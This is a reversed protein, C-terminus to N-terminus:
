SKEPPSTGRRARWYNMQQQAESLNLIAQDKVTWSCIDKDWSLTYAAAEIDRGTVSLAAEATGRKRRMTLTCDATANIGTSGLASEMHDGDNDGGKRNHHIVIVAINLSDAIDKLASMGNVTQSYDNLDSIGMMKQFTEIIVVRFQPNTKLFTRLEAPSRRKTELRSGNFAEIGQKQVRKQIHRPTDELAYYLVDCRRARLTGLFRGGQDLATVLQLAVQSKAIKSAGTLVSLGATILGEVIWDEPPFQKELLDCFLIGGGASVGSGTVADLEAALKALVADPTERNELAEKATAAARWAAHGRYATLGENEYFSINATSPVTNTLAAADLRGHKELESVLTVLDAEAGWVKLDKVAQFVAKQAGSSFVDKSVQVGIDAGLLYAGLLCRDYEAILHDAYPTIPRTKTTM